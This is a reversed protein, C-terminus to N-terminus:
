AKNLMQVIEDKLHLRKKKLAELAIDTMVTGGTDVLAIQHNLEDYETYLKAFHSHTTKLSHIKDKLAPFESAIDHKLLDM